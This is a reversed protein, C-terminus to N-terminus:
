SILAGERAKMHELCWAQCTQWCLSTALSAATMMVQLLQQRWLMATKM